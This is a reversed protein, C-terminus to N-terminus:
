KRFFKIINKLFVYVARSTVIRRVFPVLSLLSITFVGISLFIKSIGLKLYSASISLGRYGYNKTMEKKLFRIDNKIKPFQENIIPSDVSHISKKALLYINEKKTSFPYDFNIAEPPTQCFDSAIHELGNSHLLNRLSDLTFTSLHAEDILPFGFLNPVEIYIHGNDELAKALSSIATFPDELHELVHVMTILNYKETLEPQKSLDITKFGMSEAFGLGEKDLDAVTCDSGWHQNFARALMGNYGGYDLISYSSFSEGKLNNEVVNAIHKWRRFSITSWPLSIPPYVANEGKKRYDQDSYTILKGDDKYHSVLGCECCLINTWNLPKSPFVWHTYNLPITSTSKCSRCKYKTNKKSELSSSM